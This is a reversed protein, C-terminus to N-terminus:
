KWEIYVLGNTGNGGAFRYGPASDIYGGGGGGAGYGQGGAGNYPPSAGGIRTYNSKQITSYKYQLAGICFWLSYLLIKEM